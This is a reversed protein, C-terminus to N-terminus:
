LLPTCTTTASRLSIRLFLTSWTVATTAFLVPLRLAPRVPVGATAAAAPLFLLQLCSFV